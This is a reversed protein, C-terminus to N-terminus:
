LASSPATLPPSQYAAIKRRVLDMHERLVYVHETFALPLHANKVKEEIHDLQRLLALQQEQPRPRTLQIELYKLEGYWRYIRRRLRWFYLAPATKVVPVLIALIPLIALAARDVLTALWFPLYRQLFPPGSQYFHAADKSLVFDNDKAAPFERAGNLLTPTAHTKQMAKMLLAVLAPHLNETVM